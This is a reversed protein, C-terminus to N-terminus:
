HSGLDDVGVAGAEYKFVTSVSSEDWVRGYRKTLNEGLPKEPDLLLITKTTTARGFSLDWVAVRLTASNLLLFSDVLPLQHYRLEVTGPPKAQKVWEAIQKKFVSVASLIDSVELGSIKEASIIPGNPDTVCFDVHAGREIAVKITEVKSMLLFLSQAVIRLSSGAAMTSTWNAIPYKMEFVDRTPFIELIGIQACVAANSEGRQLQGRLLGIFQQLYKEAVLKEYLLSVTFVAFIVIGLEKLLERLYGAFGVEPLAIATAIFLLGVLVFIVILWKSNANTERSAPIEPLAM